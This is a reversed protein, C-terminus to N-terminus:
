NEAMPFQLRGIREKCDKLSVSREGDAGGRNLRAEEVLSDLLGHSYSEHFQCICKGEGVIDAVALLAGCEGPLEEPAVREVAPVGLPFVDHICFVGGCPHTKDPVFALASFFQCTYDM